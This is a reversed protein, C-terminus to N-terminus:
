FIRDMNIYRSNNKSGENINEKITRTKFYDM